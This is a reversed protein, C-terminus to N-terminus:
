AGIHPIGGEGRGPLSTLPWTGGGLSEEQQATSEGTHEAGGVRRLSIVGM